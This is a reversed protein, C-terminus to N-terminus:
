AARRSLRTEALLVLVALGLLWPALDRGAAAEAIRGDPAAALIGAGPLGAAALRAAAEAATLLAAEGEAAPMTLVAEGLTDGGAVFTYFGQRSAPEGGRFRPGRALRLPCAPGRRVRRAPGPLAAGPRGPRRRRGRRGRRRRRAARGRRPAPRTPRLRGGGALFAALRRALPPFMPNRALDTADDLTSFPAVLLRGRERSALALLPDGGSTALLVECGSDPLAHYRRWQARTLTALADAPLGDFLPHHPATVVARQAGAAGHVRYAAPAALGLAPLLTRGLEAADAPDGAFLAVGGDRELRELVATQLRRGLPGPDVLLVADAAALDGDAVDAVARARVHHLEDAGGAAGGPALANAWYRWGGRGAAGADAGHVILVELRDRVELLFPRADDVPFRDAATVVLGRHLGAAPAAFAFVLRDNEGPSAASAAEAVLRGDLELRWVQGPHGVRVDAEVQVAEGARLARLPTRVLAVGGAVRPEGVALLSLRAGGAAALARAADALAADDWACAQLDSILLLSVPRQPAEAVWAAAEALAAAADGAGDTPTVARLAAAAGAGAGTWGNFVARPRPGALVVQVVAGAPLSGVADAAAALAADFRTGRDQETRMSASTDLVVLLAAPAPAAGDRGGLRPGAAAAVVLLIALMRLLLLLWRRVGLARSRRAKVEELFRLDSFAIERVRRRQLLHLLLPVAAAAAGFLLGPNLFSLPM